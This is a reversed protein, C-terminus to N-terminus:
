STAAIVEEIVSNPIRENLLVEGSSARVAQAFRTAWVNEFLMIGASSGNDLSAALEYADEDNLLETVDTLLPAYQSALDPTLDGLEFVAVSGEADKRIFLLDVIHVLGDNVLETMAPVLDGSIQDGPFRIMLMEIPGFAM